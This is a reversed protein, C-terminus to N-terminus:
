LKNYEEILEKIQRDKKMSGTTCKLSKLSPNKLIEEISLLDVLKAQYIEIREVNPVFALESIDSLRKIRDLVLVKIDECRRLEPIREIRNNQIISGCELKPLESLISLDDLGNLSYLELYNIKENGRLTSCDCNRMMGLSLTNINTEKLFTFERINSSNITLKKLRNLNKLISFGNNIKYIFLSELFQFREIISFDLHSNKIGTGLMLNIINPNLNTLFSIDKLEDFCIRLSKLNTICSLADINNVSISNIEGISLDVINTLNELFKLNCEIGYFGYVRFQIDSRETLIIDNVLKLAQQPIEKSIQIYKINQNDKIENAENFSLDDFIEIRNMNIKYSM